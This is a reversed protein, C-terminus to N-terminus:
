IEGDISSALSTRVKHWAWNERRHLIRLVPVMQMAYSLVTMVRTNYLVSSLHAPASARALERVRHVWKEGPKQWLIAPTVEPGLMMGLYEAHPLM